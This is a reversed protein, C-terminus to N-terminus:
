VLLVALVIGLIIALGILNKIANTREQRVPAMAREHADRRAANVELRIRRLEQVADAAHDDELEPFDLKAM